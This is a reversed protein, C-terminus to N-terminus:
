LNTSLTNKRHTPNHPHAPSGIPHHATQKNPPNTHNQNKNKLIELAKLRNQASRANAEKSIQTPEKEPVQIQEITEPKQTNYPSNDETEITPDDNETIPDEPCPNPLETRIKFGNEPDNNPDYDIIIEKGEQIPQTAYIHIEGRVSKAEANIDTNKGGNIWRAATADRPDIADIVKKPGIRFVYEPDTKPYRLTLARNTIEVGTYQEIQEGKNIHKCTFVGMNRSPHLTNINSKRIEIKGKNERNLTAIRNTIITNQQELPLETFTTNPNWDQSLYPEPTTHRQPYELNKRKASIRPSPPPDIAPADLPGNVLDYIAGVTVRACEVLLDPKANRYVEADNLITFSPHEDRITFYHGKDITQWTDLNYPFALKPTKVHLIIAKRRYHIQTTGTEITIQAPCTVRGQDERQHNRRKDHDHINQPDTHPPFTTPIRHKKLDQHLARKTKSLLSPM